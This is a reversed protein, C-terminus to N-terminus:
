HQDLASLLAEIVRDQQQTTLHPHLPLSLIRGSAREAVPFSGRGCGLHAFAGTLHLPTPYHVGAGIGM